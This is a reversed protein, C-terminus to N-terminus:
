KKGGKKKDEVTSIDDEDIEAWKEPLFEELDAAVDGQLTIEDDGTVSSGCAFKSGLVKGAKKLDIDYTKLGVVVTIYKRGGRNRRLLTIARKVDAEKKVKALGKGKKKSDDLSLGELDAYLEDYLDENKSQLAEKCAKATPGFGCYEPPVSCVTCYYVDVTM